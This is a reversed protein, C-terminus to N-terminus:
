DFDPTEPIAERAPQAKPANANKSASDRGSRAGRPTKAPRHAGLRRVAPDKMATPGHDEPPAGLESTRLAPATVKPKSAPVLNAFPFTPASDFAAVDTLLPQTGLHSPAAKTQQWLAASGTCLLIGGLVFWRSWHVSAGAPKIASTRQGPASSLTSRWNTGMAPLMKTPAESLPPTGGQHASRVFPRGAALPETLLLLERMSPRDTPKKTLLRDVLASVEMPINGCVEDLVPPAQYIHMAMIAGLGEAQFPVRGALLQFLIVGLSYVDARDDVNGAGTCQEPAMYFATGMVTGTQTLRRAPEHEPTLAVAGGLKAIGFDLVKAREGSSQSPDRVVMVNDPKLDRHVIGAEHAAELASAIQRVLHIVESLQMRGGRRELRASLSEGRLLEMVIYTTGDPLRGLDYIEVIGPHEVLNVARAENLFRQAVQVDSAYQPHLVKIAAHRGIQEHIAEFVAGMGGEGLMRVIRYSGVIQGIALM